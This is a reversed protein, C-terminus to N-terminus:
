ANPTAFWSSKISASIQANVNYDHTICRNINFLANPFVSISIEIILQKLVVTFRCIM